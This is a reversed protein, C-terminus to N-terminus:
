FLPLMWCDGLPGALLRRYMYDSRGRLNGSSGASSGSDPSGLFDDKSDWSLVPMDKKALRQNLQEVEGQLLTQLRNEVKRMEATLRDTEAMQSDSPRGPYNSVALYLNAIEERIREEEDVYFDGGTFTVRDKERAAKVAVSDALAQTKRPLDALPDAQQELQDLVQYVWALDESLDYLQQLTKRQLERDSRSYPSQPDYVLEFSTEYTDKGKILKVEYEGAALNPGFLSGFLAMRNNTPAAKPKELATPMSVIQLGAGKGAPLTKILEGDRYVEIYMKGFTHRRQNYYVIRAESAPNPGTFDGSGGFWGGGAGPDRLVTPETELFVLKERTVDRNLQRLPTIDDLIIVGRGHTGMVLAHDRPHIVMDRVGVRPMNNSFRAWSNGGDLSVYLGLETGLFLLDPNVPDQRVSLAYGEIDDTVLSKWSQGGDDTRYLYPTMDGTRHGDFTVFATQADHPGPEIFTVWTNAPLDPVNGILNTWNSGGDTTLQLNGDDTGAWIMDPNRPSEAIAYITTHNEATSNDISLGGSEFQRQKEPDDTTLDPSIREWSDGMNDSRFLYQAGFYMRDPNNPSLHLPANWNWRLKEEGESRYPSISKAQGTRKNYRALNGGQYESFVIDENTPHRFSYFGDGGFTRQWDANSIGGAKRSPAYWSGNDQLGGYVNYPEEMDVSVHYFQSIPLNMWMKFTYGRDFSEYLGGDTALLIHKGNDPDIWIDHADSHVSGDVSRFQEGATESIIASLGCKILISDNSPDVAMNSFYFPRVTTNFTNNVMKWNMGGDTSRYLGKKDKSKTEVSAYVMDSNSPAVAVAMRGLKEEPLGNHIESWNSGGDTTKYLGSNGNFGSDFTWPQRRFSWMAAYLVDPNAADLSLDAAGTHEDIYLVKEWSKGGDTTRFVGREENASWLQGLAAVWVTDPHEPHVVIDAIRETNELGLHSWEAGGNTSKYIGNGISVSNRPWPEGTGVWVTEPESPAVAVKGISMTHDDFVPRVLGGGSVTKWVGGGASGIYVVESQGPVVAISSIRGSMTAPGIQRARLDGFLSSTTTFDQQGALPLSLCAVALLLLLRNM